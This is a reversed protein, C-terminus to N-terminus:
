TEMTDTMPLNGHKPAYIMTIISIFYKNWDLISGCGESYCTLITESKNHFSEAFRTSIHVVGISYASYQM